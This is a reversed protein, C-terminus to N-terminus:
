LGDFVGGAKVAVELAQAQEHDIVRGVGQLNKGDNEAAGMRFDGGGGARNFRALKELLHQDQLLLPGGIGASASNQNDAVPAGSETTLVRKSM